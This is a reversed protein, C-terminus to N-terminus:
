RAAGKLSMVSQTSSGGGATSQKESKQCSMLTGSLILGAIVWFFRTAKLSSNM